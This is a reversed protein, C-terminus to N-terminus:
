VLAPKFGCSDVVTLLGDLCRAREPGVHEDGVDDHGVHIANIGRDGNPGHQGVALDQEKGALGRSRIKQVTRADLSMFELNKGFWDM